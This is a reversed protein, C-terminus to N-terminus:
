RDGEVGFIYERCRPYLVSEGGPLSCPRQERQQPAAAAGGAFRPDRSLISDHRNRGPGRALAHQREDARLRLARREDTNVPVTQAASDMPKRWRRTSSTLRVSLLGTNRMTAAWATCRAWATVSKTASVSSSSRSRRRGAQEGQEVGVAPHFLRLRSPATGATRELRGSCTFATTGARSLLSCRRGSMM